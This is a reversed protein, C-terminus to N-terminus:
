IAGAGRRQPASTARERPAIIIEQEVEQGASEMVPKRLSLGLEVTAPGPHAKALKGAILRQARDYYLMPDVPMISVMKEGPPKVAVVDGACCIRDGLTMPKTLQIFRIQDSKQFGVEPM